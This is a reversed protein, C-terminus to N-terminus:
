LARARLGDELGTGLIYAIVVFAFESIQQDTFPLSVYSRLVIMLLALFAAWFKRSRLLQKLKDM